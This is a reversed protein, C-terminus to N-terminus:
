ERERLANERWDEVTSRDSDKYRTRIHELYEKLALFCPLNEFESWDDAPICFLVERCHIVNDAYWANIQMDGYGIAFRRERPHEPLTVTIIDSRKRRFM